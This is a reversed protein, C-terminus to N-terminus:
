PAVAARGALAVLAARAARRQGDAAFAPRARRPRHGLRRVPGLRPGARHGGAPLAVAPPDARPRAPPPLRAPPRPRPARRGAPVAPPRGRRPPALRHRLPREAAPEDTRPGEEKPAARGGRIAPTGEM